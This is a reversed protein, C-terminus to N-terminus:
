TNGDRQSLANAFFRRPNAAVIADIDEQTLGASRLQPIVRKFVHSVEWEPMQEKIRAAPGLLCTCSDASILIQDRFGARVLQVLNKVRLTDSLELAFGFRDLGVYAGRRAIASHLDHDDRDGLHGVLLRAPSLGEKIVLDVQEHGCTAGETHSIIPVRTARAARAGATIMKREYPSIENLGTAIKVVGARIGTDGIGDEIEQVYLDVLQELPTDRFLEPAGGTETYIGTACVVTVGSRASAEAVFEVDRGLDIPCPDVITACGYDRLEQLQDVAHALWDRRTHAPPTPERDWGPPALFVHEHILTPGLGDIRVAGNAAAILGSM